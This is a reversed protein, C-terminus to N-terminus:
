LSENLRAEAAEDRRTRALFLSNWAFTQNYHLGEKAAAAARALDGQKLYVWSQCTLGRARGYDDRFVQMFRRYQDLASHYRGQQFRLHGLHIIAVGSEPNLTLARNYAAEAEEYRGIWQHFLALSDWANPDNPA